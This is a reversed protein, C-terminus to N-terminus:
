YIASWEPMRPHQPVATLFYAADNSDGNFLPPSGWHRFSLM